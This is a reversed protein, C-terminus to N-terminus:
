SAAEPEPEPETQPTVLDALGAAQAVSLAGRPARYSPHGFSAAPEGTIEALAAALLDWCPFGQCPGMGCGTLRKLEEVHTVGSEALDRIEGVSVDMCPCVFARDDLAPGHVIPESHEAASGTIGIHAPLADAGLRFEGDAAAQFPLSPDSRWPGAHIIADCEASGTEFEAREVRKRGRIRRLSAAPHTATIHAGMSALRERLAALDGSGILVARGLDIQQRLLSVGTALDFVGPLDAGSVLPPISRRGTALILRRAEILKASGGDLPTCLLLTGRRYLGCAEYGALLAAGKPLDPLAAGLAAAMAGPERGRSIMLVSAGSAAADIAAKRGDPGGGVIAVDVRRREGALAAGTLAPDAPEGGGAMFRLFSEWLQFRRSGGPLWAPHEFGGRLWRRPILRALRLLDLRGNPWTNQMRISLGAKVPTQDLRRNPLGDVQAKVGAIFVGSLGQPRHFKRSRGLVPIGAAYLASAADQGGRAAIPRGEWHITVTEAPHNSRDM